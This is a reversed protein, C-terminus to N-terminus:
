RKLLADIERCAPGNPLVYGGGAVSGVLRAEGTLLLSGLKYAAYADLHDDDKGAISPFGLAEAILTHGGRGVSGRRVDSGRNINLAEEM